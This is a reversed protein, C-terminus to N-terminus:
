FRLLYLALLVGTWLMISGGVFFLTSFLTGKLSMLEDNVKSKNEM